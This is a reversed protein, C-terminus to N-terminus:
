ARGTSSSGSGTSGRDSRSWAGTPRCRRSRTTSRPSTARAASAIAWPSRRANTTAPRGCARGATRSPPSPRPTTPSRWSRWRRTSHRPGDPPMGSSSQLDIPIIPNPTEPRVTAIWFDGRRGGALFVPQVATGQLVAASGGLETSLQVDVGTRSTTQHWFRVYVFRDTPDGESPVVNLRDRDPHNGDWEHVFAAAEPIGLFPDVLFSQTRPDYPQIVRTFAGIEAAAKNFSPDATSSPNDSDDLLAAFPLIEVVRNTLPFHEEDAPPTLLTVKVESPNPTNLGSVRARYLPAADDMAWVFHDADTLM